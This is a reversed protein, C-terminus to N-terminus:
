GPPLGRMCFDCNQGPACSPPGNVDRTGYEHKINLYWTEGPRVHTEPTAPLGDTNATAPSHLLDVSIDGGGARM